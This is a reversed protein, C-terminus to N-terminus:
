KKIFFSIISLIALIVVIIGLLIIPWNLQSLIFKATPLDAGGIIGISDTDQKACGAFLTPIMLLILIMKKM